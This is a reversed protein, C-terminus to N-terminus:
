SSPLCYSEYKIYIPRSVHRFLSARRTGEGEEQVVPDMDEKCHLVRTTRGEEERKKRRSALLQHAAEGTMAFHLGRCCLLLICLLPMVLAILVVVVTTLLLILHVKQSERENEKSASREERGKTTWHPLAVQLHTLVAPIMVEGRRKMRVRTVMIEVLQMPTALLLAVHLTGIRATVKTQRQRRPQGMKRESKKASVDIMRLLHLETEITAGIKTRRKTVGVRARRKRRLLHEGPDAGRMHTLIEAEEQRVKVVKVERKKRKRRKKKKRKEERKKRRRWKKREWKKRPVEVEQKSLNQQESTCSAHLM